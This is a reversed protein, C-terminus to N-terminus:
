AADGANDMMGILWEDVQEQTPEEFSEDELTGTLHQVLFLVADVDMMLDHRHPPWLVAPHMSPRISDASPPTVMRESWSRLRYTM